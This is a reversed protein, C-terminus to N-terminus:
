KNYQAYASEARLQESELLQYFEATQRKDTGSEPAPVYTPQLNQIQRYGLIEDLRKQAIEAQEQKYDEFGSHYRTFVQWDGDQPRQVPVYDMDWIGYELSWTNGYEDVAADKGTETLHYTHGRHMGTYIDPPNLSEGTM